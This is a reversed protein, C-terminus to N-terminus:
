GPLAGVAGAQDVSEWHQEIYTHMVMFAQRFALCTDM